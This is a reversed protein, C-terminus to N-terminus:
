NYFLFNLFVLKKFAEDFNKCEYLWIVDLLDWHNSEKARKYIKEYKENNEKFFDPKVSYKKNVDEKEDNKNEDIWKLHENNDIDNYINKVDKLLDEKKFNNQKLKILSKILLARAEYIELISEYQKNEEEM